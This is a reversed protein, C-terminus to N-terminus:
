FGFQVSRIVKAFYNKSELLQEISACWNALFLDGPNIQCIVEELFNQMPVMMKERGKKDPLYTM